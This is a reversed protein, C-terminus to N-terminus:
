VLSERVKLDKYHDLFIDILASSNTKSESTVNIADPSLLVKLAVERQKRNMLILSARDELTITYNEIDGSQLTLQLPYSLRLLNHYVIWIRKQSGTSRLEVTTALGRLLSRRTATTTFSNVVEAVDSIDSDKLGRHTSTAM